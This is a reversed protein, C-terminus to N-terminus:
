RQLLVNRMWLQGASGPRSNTTEVVFLIDHIDRPDPHPARAADVPAVDDFRITHDRPTEDVYVSRQWHETPPGLSRFRVSIRMPRDARATFTLRDFPAARDPLEVGVAAYPGPPSVPSLAYRMRLEAGPTAQWHRRDIEPGSRNAVM